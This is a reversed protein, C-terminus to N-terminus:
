NRDKGNHKARYIMRSEQNLERHLAARERATVVGDARAQREDQRIERANRELRWFEGRTLEGSSVGGFIRRQQNHQRRNVGPTRPGCGGGKAEAVVAAGGLLALAFVASVFKRM